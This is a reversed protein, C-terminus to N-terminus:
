FKYHHHNCHCHHSVFCINCHKLTQSNPKTKTAQKCTFKYFSGHPASKVLKVTNQQSIMLSKERQKSKEDAKSILTMM